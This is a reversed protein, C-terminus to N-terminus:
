TMAALKFNRPSSWGTLPPLRRAVCVGGGKTSQIGMLRFDPGYGADQLKGGSYMHKMAMDTRLKLDLRDGAPKIVASIAAEVFCWGPSEYTAGEFERPLESQM